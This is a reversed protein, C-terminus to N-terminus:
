KSERRACRRLLLVVARLYDESVGDDKKLEALIGDAALTCRRVLTEDSSEGIRRVQEPSSV